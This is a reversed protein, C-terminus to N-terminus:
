FMFSIIEIFKILPVSVYSTFFYFLIIKFILFATLESFHKYAKITKKKQPIILFFDYRWGINEIM